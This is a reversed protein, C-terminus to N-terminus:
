INELVDSTCVLVLKHIQRELCNVDIHFYNEPKLKVNTKSSFLISKNLNCNKPLYNKSTLSDYIYKMEHQHIFKWINLQVPKLEASLRDKFHNSDKNRLFEKLRLIYALLCKLKFWSSTSKCLKEVPNVPNPTQKTAYVSTNKIM